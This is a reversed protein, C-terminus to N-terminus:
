SVIGHRQIAVRVESIHLVQLVHFQGVSEGVDGTGHEVPAFLQFADVQRVGLHRLYAGIREILVFGEGRHLQGGGDGGDARIGEVLAPVQGGDVEGRCELADALSSEAVVVEGTQM